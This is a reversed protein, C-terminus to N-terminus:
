RVFDAILESLREPQDEPVFSYSDDIAELRADPLIAAMRRAHDAPFLRDETAWALLVPKKFDALRRAAELTYRPHIGALIKATDRRIRPSTLASHLYRASVDGDIPRKVLLGYALPSNRVARARMAQLILGLATPNSGIWQLPRFLPPLFNEFMDCPTLVVRGVRQPRTTLLIQTLAGGTDNAVLTADRVDLADLFDAMTNALGPPSMDAEPAMPTRHSGLPLDPVICRYRDALVPVVKRWLMGNVLLGHIFVLPAGRGVERYHIPGPTTDASRETAGELVATDTM